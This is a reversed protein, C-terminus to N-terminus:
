LLDVICFKQCYGVLAGVIKLIHNHNQFNDPIALTVHSILDSTINKSILMFWALDYKQIAYLLNKKHHDLRKLQFLSSAIAVM